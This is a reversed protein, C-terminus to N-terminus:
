GYVKRILEGIVGGSYYYKIFDDMDVDSDVSYGEFFLGLLINGICEYLFICLIITAEITLLLIEVPYLLVYLVWSLLHRIKM